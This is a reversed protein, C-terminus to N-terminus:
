RYDTIPLRHPLQGYYVRTDYAFRVLGDRQYQDFLDAFAAILDPYHPHGPQPSYSSSLMRGKLGEFDFDQYNDFRATHFPDLGLALRIDEDSANQHCVQSYDDSFTRLIHEYDRQFASKKRRENWVLVVWGGPKLIRAFEERAREWDFWHFAQGATIFDVSRAPLTTAEATGDISIFNPSGALLREAAERMPQNPEIGFVQNGNNLFPEALKGTGSGIDAVRAAADFGCEAELLDLIQPPYGPRYRVYEEVRSSFREISSQM